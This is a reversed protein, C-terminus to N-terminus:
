SVEAGIDVRPPSLTLYGMSVVDVCENLYELVNDKNIGGSVEVIVDQRRKKIECTLEKVEQPSMNDLMIIDVYPLVSLVEERSSVEVELKHAFSMNARARKVAELLGGVAEAHTDKILVMDSLGLRHTDAGANRAFLKAWFRMGPVTKRTVALRVHKFGNADLLERVRRVETSISLVHILFNLLTREILLLDKALGNVRILTGDKWGEQAVYVPEFGLAGLAGELLVPCVFYVRERAVIEMSIEKPENSFIVDSTLDGLPADEGLWRRIDRALKPAYQYCV